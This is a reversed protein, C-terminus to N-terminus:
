AADNSYKAVVALSAYIVCIPRYSEYNEKVEKTTGFLENGPCNLDNCTREVAQLKRPRM